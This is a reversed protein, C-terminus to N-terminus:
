SCLNPAGCRVHLGATISGSSRRGRELSWVAAAHVALVCAALTASPRPAKRRLCKMSLLRITFPPMTIGSEVTGTRIGYATCLPALRQGHWSTQLYGKENEKGIAAWFFSYRLVGSRVGDKARSEGQKSNLTTNGHGFTCASIM